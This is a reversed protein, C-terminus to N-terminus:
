GRTIMLPDSCLCLQEQIHLSQMRGDRKQAYPHHDVRRRLRLLRARLGERGSESGNEVEVDDEDHRGEVVRAIDYHGLVVNVNGRVNGSERRGSERVENLFDM